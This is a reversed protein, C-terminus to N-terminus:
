GKLHCVVATLGGAVLAYLMIFIGIFLYARGLLILGFAVPVAYVLWGVGLSFWLPLGKGSARRGGILGGILGGLAATAPWVCLLLPILAVVGIGLLLGLGEARAAPTSSLSYVYAALASATLLGLVLHLPLSILAGFGIPRALSSSSENM